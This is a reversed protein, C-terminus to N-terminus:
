KDGREVENKLARLIFEEHKNPHPAETTEFALECILNGEEDVIERVWADRDLCKVTQAKFRKM